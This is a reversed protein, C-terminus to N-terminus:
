SLTPATKKTQIGTAVQDGLKNMIKAETLTDVAYKTRAIAEPTEPDGILM